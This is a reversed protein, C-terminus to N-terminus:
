QPLAQIISGAMAAEMDAYPKTRQPVVGRCVVGELFSEPTGPSIGRWDGDPKGEGLKEGAADMVVAAGYRFKAEGCVFTIEQLTYSYNDSGIPKPTEFYMLRRVTKTSAAEDAVIRSSEWGMAGGRMGVVTWNVEAPLEAEQAHAAGAALLTALVLGAVRMFGECTERGMKCGARGGAVVRM